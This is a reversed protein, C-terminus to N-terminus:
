LNFGFMSSRGIWMSGNVPLGDVGVEGVPLKVRADAEGDIGALAGRQILIKRVFGQFVGDRGELVRLPLGKFPARVVAGDDANETTADLYDDTHIRSFARPPPHQPDYPDQPTTQGDYVLVDPRIGTVNLKVSEMGAPLVLLAVITGSAAMGGEESQSISMDEISISQVIEPPPNPGPFTLNVAVGPLEQALYAPAPKTKPLGFAPRSSGHVTVGNPLGKM